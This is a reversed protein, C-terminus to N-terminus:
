DTKQVHDILFDITKRRMLYDKLIAHIEQPDMSSHIIPNEAKMMQHMYEQVIDQQTLQIQHEGAIRQSIFALQYAEKVEKATREEIERIKAKKEEESLGETDLESVQHAVRDRIQDKILSGPIEFPYKEALQDELQIRLRSRAHDQARSEIDQRIRQRLEEVRKM